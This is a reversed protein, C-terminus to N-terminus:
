LSLGGDVCIVQGTIYAAEDSALFAALAAVDEPQGLRGAAIREQAHAKQDDSLAATMDTEIFGPAIANVTVGKRALEKALAKTLGIVGAKSAAYNAQGPNGYVGSVSSMNIIRGSRQKTMPRMVAKACYFAGKLNVDVVADFDEPAMRMALGDRTIGANNVLVDIRGFADLAAAALAAAEDADAVNAAVTIAETGHESAIARAQAQAGELSRESSCNLVIRMGRAALAQAVALGIGRSSGTVIAVPSGTNDTM